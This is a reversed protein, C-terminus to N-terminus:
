RKRNKDDKKAQKQKTKGYGAKKAYEFNRATKYGLMAGTLGGSNNLEGTRKNSATQVYQEREAVRGHVMGENLTGSGIIREAARNLSEQETIGHKQLIAKVAERDSMQADSSLSGESLIQETKEQIVADDTYGRNRFASEIASRDTMYVGTGDKDTDQQLARAERRIENSENRFAAAERRIAGQNDEAQIERGYGEAKQEADSKSMGLAEFHEKAAEQYAAAENEYQLPNSEYKEKAAKSISNDFKDQKDGFSGDAMAKNALKEAEDQTFGSNLYAERVAEKDSIDSRNRRSLADNLISEKNEAAIKERKEQKDAKDLSSAIKREQSEFEDPKGSATNPVQKNKKNPKFSDIGNENEKKHEKAAEAKGMAYSAGRAGFMAAKSFTKAVGKATRVAGKATMVTKTIDGSEKSFGGSDGLIKELTSSGKITAIGIFFVLIAKVLGNTIPFSASSVTSCLIYYLQVLITTFLLTVLLNFTAKVVERAKQGGSLDSAAFFVALIQNVVINYFIKVLKLSAFCLVLCTTILEIIMIGFDFRYRFIYNSMLDWGMFGKTEGDNNVMIYDDGSSDNSKIMSHRMSFFYESGKQSDFSASDPKTGSMTYNSYNTGDSTQGNSTGYDYGGAYLQSMSVDPAADEDDSVLHAYTDSKILENCNLMINVQQNRTSYGSLNNTKILKSNGVYNETFNSDFDLSGINNCVNRYVTVLDVTNDSIITDAFSGYSGSLQKNLAVLSYNGESDQATLIDTLGNNSSDGDAVRGGVSSDVFAASTDSNFGNFMLPLGVLVMILLFVNQVMKKIKFNKDLSDDNVLMNYGLVILSIAIPIWLFKLWGQFFHVIASDYIVGFLAFVSNYLSEFASAVTYLINVIAMLITRGLGYLSSINSYEITSLMYEIFSM